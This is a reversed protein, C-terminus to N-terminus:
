SHKNIPGNGPSPHDEIKSLTVEPDHKSLRQTAIPMHTMTNYVIFSEKLSINQVKELM